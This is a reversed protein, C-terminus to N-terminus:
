HQNPYGFQAVAFQFNKCRVTKLDLGNWGDPLPPIILEEADMATLVYGNYTTRTVTQGAAHILPMHLNQKWRDGDPGIGRGCVYVYPYRDLARLEYVRGTRASGTYFDEHRRGKFCPQCHREPRFGNVYFAWIFQFGQILGDPLDPHTVSLSISRV